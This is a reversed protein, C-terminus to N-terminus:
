GRESRCRRSPTRRKVRMSARDSSCTVDSSWLSSLLCWVLLVGLMPPIAKVIALGRKRVAAYAVLLFATLFAVQRVLDGSATAADRAAIAAPKRADFPSLGVLTLLLLLVFGAEAIRTDLSTRVPAVAPTYGESAM